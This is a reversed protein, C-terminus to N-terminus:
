AQGEEPENAKNQGAKTHHFEHVKPIQHRRRRRHQYAAVLPLMVMYAVVWVVIATPISGILMPWIVPLATEALFTFNGDLTAHTVDAFFKGFDIGSGTGTWPGIGIWEGLEYVWFWIFPFTWPNGVVTGIASTVINARLAWALIAALIFHLGIFPTFSVAAGCAFGATISYPSGPIRAVRHFIYKGM